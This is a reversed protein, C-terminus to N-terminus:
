KTWIKWAAEAQIPLMEMGNKIVAGHQKGMALFKTEEPNYVLDYLLHHPTIGSYPIPPYTDINPSMGMPTTNVILTHEKIIEPTLEEYTITDPAARRSVKKYSIGENGLVYGVARAAGGTGLILAHKHHPLLLPKLSERFGVIDTNHGTMEGNKFNICNVAGIASAIDCVRSLYPIIAQKYPITVNLGRILPVADLLVKFDNVKLLPYAKYEADIGEKAFKNTFYRPSFTHSLPYGIIGYQTPM